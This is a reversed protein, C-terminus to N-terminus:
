ENEPEDKAGKEAAEKFAAVEDDVDGGLSEVYETSGIM